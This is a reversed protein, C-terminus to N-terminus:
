HGLPLSFSQKQVSCPLRLRGDGSRELILHTGWRCLMCPISNPMEQLFIRIQLDGSHGCLGYCRCFRLFVYRQFIQCGMVMHHVPVSSSHDTETQHTIGLDVAFVRLQCVQVPKVIDAGAKANIGNKMGAVDILSLLHAGTVLVFAILLAGIVMDLFDHTNVRAAFAYFRIKDGAIM